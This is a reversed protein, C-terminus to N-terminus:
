TARRRARRGRGPTDPFVDSIRLGRPVETVALGIGKYRGSTVAEFQKLQEATFYHSFKDDYRKKLEAVM